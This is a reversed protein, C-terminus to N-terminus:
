TFCMLFCFRPPTVPFWHNSLVAIWYFLFDPFIMLLELFRDHKKLQLIFYKMLADCLRGFGYSKFSWVLSTKYIKNNIIVVTGRSEEEPVFSITHIIPVPTIVRGPFPDSLSFAGSSILIYVLITLPYIRSFISKNMVQFINSSM